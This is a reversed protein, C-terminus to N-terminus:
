TKLFPNKSISPLTTFIIGGGIEWITIDDFTNLHTKKKIELQSVLLEYM